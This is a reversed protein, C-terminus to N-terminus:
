MGVTDSKEAPLQLQLCTRFDLGDDDDLKIDDVDPLFNINTTTITNDYLVVSACSDVALNEEPEDCEIQPVQQGESDRSECIYVNPNIYTM